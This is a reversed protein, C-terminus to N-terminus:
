FTPTAVYTIVSTYQGSPVSADIGAAYQVTTMGAGATISNGVPGTTRSALTMTTSSTGTLGGFPYGYKCQNGGTATTTTCAPNSATTQWYTTGITANYTDLGCAHIGFRPISAPMVAPTTVAPIEFGTAPNRLPSSATATLVYGNLANTTITLLQAAINSLTGAAPMNGLTGLDVITATSPIGTNTTDNTNTCGTTNGTNVVTNNAIGAISFTLTADVNAQVQVSEIVGIAAKATDLDISGSDQTKVTIKWNDATGATATKTPNILTPSQTTCTGASQATCGILMTVTVGAAIQATAVTCTITPAAVTITCTTTGSSFNALIKTGTDSNLGNFAFTSASPSASNDGAGAFTLLVKGGVPVANVTTFKITHLATIAVTVPDGAHHPNPAGTGTLYLTKSGGSAASMSAITVTNLTEGIDPRLTASDSALYISGNDFVSLTTAGAAQNASLPASASPRSTTVTDSINTLTGAYSKGPFLTFLVLIFISGTIYSLKATGRNVSHHSLIM